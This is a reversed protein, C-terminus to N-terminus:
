EAVIRAPAVGVVRLQAEEVEAASTVLVQESRRHGVPEPVAQAARESVSENIYSNTLIVAILGALIAGGIVAAKKKDSNKLDLAM